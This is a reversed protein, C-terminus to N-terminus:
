YSWSPPHANSLVKRVSVLGPIDALTYLGISERYIVEQVKPAFFQMLSVFKKNQGHDMDGFLNLLQKLDDVTYWLVNLSEESWLKCVRATYANTKRDCFFFINYLIEPILLADNM